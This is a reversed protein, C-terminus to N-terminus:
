TNKLKKQFIEYFFLIIAGIFIVSCTGFEFFLIFNNPEFLKIEGFKIIQYFVFGWTGSLWLVLWILIFVKLKNKM